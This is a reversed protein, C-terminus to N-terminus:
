LKWAEFPDYVKPRPRPKSKVSGTTNVSYAYARGGEVTPGHSRFKEVKYGKEAFFMKIGNLKNAGLSAMGGSVPTLVGIKLPAAQAIAPAALDLSGTAALAGAAAGTALVKRRTLGATKSIEKSTTM